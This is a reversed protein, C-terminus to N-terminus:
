PRAWLSLRVGSLKMSRLNSLVRVWAAILFWDDIDLKARKIRRSALRAALFLLSLAVFAITLSLIEANHNANPDATKSADISAM